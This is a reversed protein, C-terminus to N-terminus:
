PKERATSEAPQPTRAAMMQNLQSELDAVHQRYWRASELLDKRMEDEKISGEAIPDVLTAYLEMEFRVHSEHEDKVGADYGPKLSVPAGQGESAASVEPPVLTKEPRDGHIPCDSDAHWVKNHRGKCTCEWRPAAKETAALLSQSAIASVLCDIRERYGCNCTSAPASRALYACDAMHGGHFRQENLRAELELKSEKAAHDM